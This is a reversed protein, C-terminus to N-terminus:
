AGPKTTMAWIAVIYAVLMVGTLIGAIRLQVAGAVSQGSKARRAMLGTLILGIILLLAGGDSVSFGINVWSAKSDSLHEKDVMVQAFIRMLLFAPLSALLLVRAAFRAAPQDGRKRAIAIAFFAVVLSGVLLMAGAIHLFLPLNWSDPRIVALM